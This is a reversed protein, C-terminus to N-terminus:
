RAAKLRALERWDIKRALEIAVSRGGDRSLGYAVFIQVTNRPGAVGTVFWSKRLTFLILKKRRVQLVEAKARKLFPDTKVAVDPNGRPPADSSVIRVYAVGGARRFQIEAMPEQDRTRGTRINAVSWDRPPVPLSKMLADGPKAAAQAPGLVIALVVILGIRLTRGVRMM